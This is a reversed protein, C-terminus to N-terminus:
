TAWVRRQSNKIVMPQVMPFVSEFVVSVLVIVKCLNEIQMLVSIELKESTTPVEAVKEKMADILGLAGGGSIKNKNYSRYSKTYWHLFSKNANLSTIRSSQLFLVSMLEKQRRLM